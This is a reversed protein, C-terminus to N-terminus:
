ERGPGPPPPPPDSDAAVWLHRIAAAGQGAAADFATLLGHWWGLGAPKPSAGPFALAPSALLSASLGLAVLTKKSM